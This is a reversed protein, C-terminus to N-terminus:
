RTSPHRGLVCVADVPKLRLTRLEIDGYGATRLAAAIREGVADTGITRAASGRPQMTLAVTAGPALVASLRRLVAVPDPWFMFVNVAMAKTFPENVDLSDIEGVHLSVRGSALGARNRRAAQRRMVESVDVGVVRGCTARRVAYVLGIGPGYGIELLHDAPQLDLQDVTWLNRVRNSHRAAM